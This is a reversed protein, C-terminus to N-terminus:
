LLRCSPFFEVPRSRRSSRGRERAYILSVIHSINIVRSICLGGARPQRPYDRRKNEKASTGHRM